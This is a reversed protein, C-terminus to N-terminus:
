PLQSVHIMAERGAGVGIWEVPVGVLAEVRRIYAQANVPLASFSRCQSVDEKWGPLTEYVVEVDALINM